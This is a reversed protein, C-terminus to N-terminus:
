KVALIADKEQLWVVGGIILLSLKQFPYSCTMNLAGEHTIIDTV